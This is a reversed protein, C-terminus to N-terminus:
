IDTEPTSAVISTNVLLPGGVPGTCSMTDEIQAPCVVEFESSGVAFSPLVPVGPQGNPSCGTWSENFSIVAADLNVQLYIQLAADAATGFIQCLSNFQLDCSVAETRNTASSTINLQATGPTYTDDSYTVRLSELTWSPLACSRSQRHLVRASSPRALM